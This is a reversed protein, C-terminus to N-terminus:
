GRTQARRVAARVYERFRALVPDEHAIRHSVLMVPSPPLAPRVSILRVLGLAAYRRAISEPVISVFPTDAVLALNSDFTRTEIVPTIAPLGQESWFRELVRRSTSDRAPLVWGIDILRSLGVTTTPLARNSASCVIRPREDYLHEAVFDAGIGEIGAVHRMIAFDLSGHELRQYLSTSDDEIVTLQYAPRYSAEDLATRSGNSQSGTRRKAAAPARSNLRNLLHPMLVHMARPICGLRVTPGQADLLGDLRKMSRLVFRAHDLLLTGQATPQSGKVSRDFLRTGLLKEADALLRSVAPQTMKLERAARHVSQYDAVAVLAEIHRRQLPQRSRSLPTSSM